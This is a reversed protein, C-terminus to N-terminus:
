ALLDRDANLLEEDLMDSDSADDDQSVPAFVNKNSLVDEPLTNAAKHEKAAAERTKRQKYVGAEKRKEYARVANPNIFEPNEYLVKGRFSGAFVQMCTRRKQVREQRTYSSRTTLLNLALAPKLRCSDAM